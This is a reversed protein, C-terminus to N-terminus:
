SHMVKAALQVVNAVHIVAFCGQVAEDFSGPKKLDAQFLKLKDGQQHGTLHAVRKTQELNRMTGHVHYGKDLLQVIIHGAVYGTAGTVCVAREEKDEVAPVETEVDLVKPRVALLSKGEASSKLKQFAEFEEM